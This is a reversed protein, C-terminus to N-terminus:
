GKKPCGGWINAQPPAGGQRAVWTIMTYMSSMLAVAFSYWITNYMELTKGQVMTITQCAPSGALFIIHWLDSTICYKSYLVASGYNIGLVTLSFLICICTVNLSFM